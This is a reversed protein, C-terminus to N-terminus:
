PTAIKLVTGDAHRDLTLCALLTDGTGPRVQSGPGATTRRTMKNIDARGNGQQNRLLGNQVSIDIDVREIGRMM